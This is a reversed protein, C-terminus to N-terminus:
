RTDAACCLQQCVFVRGFHLACGWAWAWGHSEAGCAVFLSHDLHQQVPPMSQGNSQWHTCLPPGPRM